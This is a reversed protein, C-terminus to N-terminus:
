DLEVSTAVISYERKATAANPNQGADAAFHAAEERSLSVVELRGYATSEVSGTDTPIFFGYDKFTVRAYQEADTLIMFCGKKRCVETVRGRIKGEFGDAAEAQAIASALSVAEGTGPMPAGYQQSALASTTTLAAILSLALKITRTM